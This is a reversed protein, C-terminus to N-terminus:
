REGAWIELPTTDMITLFYEDRLEFGKLASRQNATNSEVWTDLVAKWTGAAGSGKGLLRWLKYKNVFIYGQERVDNLLSELEYDDYKSTMPLVRASARPMFCALMSIAGVFESHVINKFVFTL